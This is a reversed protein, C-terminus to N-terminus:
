FRPVMVLLLPTKLITTIFPSTMLKGAYTILWFGRDGGVEFAVLVPSGASPSRYPKGGRVM